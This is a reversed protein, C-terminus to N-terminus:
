RPLMTPLSSSSRLLANPRLITCSPTFIGDCLAYGAGCTGQRPWLSIGQAKAPSSIAGLRNMLLQATYNSRAKPVIHPGFGGSKKIMVNHLQVLAPLQVVAHQARPLVKTASCLLVSIFITYINFLNFAVMIHGKLLRSETSM